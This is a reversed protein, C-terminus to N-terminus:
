KGNNGVRLTSWVGGDFLFSAQSRILYDLSVQDRGGALMEISIGMMPGFGNFVGQRVTSGQSSDFKYSNSTWPYPNFSHGSVALGQQRTHGGSHVFNLRVTEGLEAMLVPTEPDCPNPRKMDIKVGSKCRALVGTGVVESSLMDTQDDQNRDPFDVSADNAGTRGWLPESKYNFGKVGYDDPEEAGALDSIPLGGQTAFIADQVVLTHDIYSTGDRKCIKASPRELITKKEYGFATIQLKFRADECVYSGEPGIVLAGALGHGPHKLPDGFSRLPVGGFEVPRNFNVDEGAFDTASWTYRRKCRTNNESGTETSSGVCPSTLSAQLQLDSPPDEFIKVNLTADTSRRNTIASNLGVNSGEDSEANYYVKAPSLGVASSMQFQNFNFGDTIMPLFNNYARSEPVESPTGSSNITPGDLLKKPLLNRLGVDLCEGAAAHMVLPELKRGAAFEARLQHLAKLNNKARWAQRYPGCNQADDPAGSCTLPEDELVYVLAEQDKIGLRKNYTIGTQTQSGCDAYLDCARIASVNFLRHPVESSPSNDSKQCPNELDAGIQSVGGGPMPALFPKTNFSIQKVEGSKKSASTVVGSFPIDASNPNYVRLFGWMGDWLQDVSSGFYLYDVMPLDQMNALIDFEFHESIGIPQANVFGSNNGGKTEGPLRHWKVGNMTFIHQAEQAGQILRIQVRDGELAPLVPTAPDGFQRWPELRLIAPDCGNDLLEKAYLACNFNRRWREVAQLVGNLQAAAPTGALMNALHPSPLAPLANKALEEDRKAHVATSFGNATDGLCDQDGPMCPKSLIARKQNQKYNWGGLAPDPTAESIRLALPEHRYNVYQSGPDESSIALPRALTQPVHRFGFRIASRDRFGNDGFPEPNIPELAMNYAIGFDAFALAFERRTDHTKLSEACTVPNSPYNLGLSPQLNVNSDSNGICDPAFINAMTSTPGGDPRVKLAPRPEIRKLLSNGNKLLATDTKKSLDSGGLLRDCLLNRGPDSPLKDCNLGGQGAATMDASELKEGIRTWVSNAPEIVLGAYLGHQQHSSPGMHDHTFVTRLTNDKNTTPNIIPDAWWRQTTRQAGCYPHEDHLLDRYQDFSLNAQLPCQGKKLLAGYRTPNGVAANFIDGGARFLPHEKLKLRKAPDPIGRNIAIVREQVEQPSFTADEYNYGNGSGDSSTVDFKVLHIHQGITDTPTFVQFDDVNLASPIFNSSKFNICEGSNARFFLPAPLSTRKDPDIIDKIDNELILIRGQPDFWGHKNYTLETQIFAARYDRMPANEPCPEAFPAGQARNRGNVYFYAPDSIADQGLVTKARDSIYAKPKWWAVNPSPANPAIQLNSNPIPKGEHFKMAAQEQTTGENPVSKISLTEWEGALAKLAIPDQLAVRQAIVQAAEGGTKLARRLVDPGDGITGSVVVHRPLGGDNVKSPDSPPQELNTWAGTDADFDLVPQPPRHGTSGAIYHPYGRFEKRPMPALSIGPIPVLAPTETGEKVEADPLNMLGPDNSSAKAPNYLGPKGDNFADHTRWLEWMGQAFHPYLHCHFISDGPTYNRNGSGGFEIDYSFTAGPSITQSDLYSANPDASDPVWQHAHLHFVHTEKPGAHLNRFRVNDGLYSHHVNSPDDPYLAGSAEGATNYKLLLAPDGNAWSSLFFEEARCEPCNKTPGLNKKFKPTAMLLSGMSSVGYNIGMGDKILHLPNNEDSLEAFAQEAHVEDHFIVTFERFPKGCSTGDARPVDGGEPLKCAKGSANVTPPVIIANLDTHVTNGQDDLLNLLPVGDIKKEYDINMYPHKGSVVNGRATQIDSYTLQSRYWRSGKPEVNVSGFLGLGIQGGDGEGGVPAGMSYAFFAGDHEAHWRTVVTQGPMALSGHSFKAKVDPPTAPNFRPAGPDDHLIGVNSGDGNCLVNLPCDSGKIKALALGTIHFSAARTRPMDVSIAQASSIGPMPISGSPANIHNPLMGGNERPIGAGNMSEEESTHSLWNTFHVELCDGENARLVIPRPRKNSRLMANGPGVPKDKDAAVVDSRLAYLMGAPVFAAFRNLLYAQEIAVIDAKVIRGSECQSVSQPTESQAAQVASTNAANVLALVMMVLVRQATRLRMFCESIM